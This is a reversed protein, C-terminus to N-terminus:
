RVHVAEQEARQHDNAATVGTAARIVSAADSGRPLRAAIRGRHMVLIRDSMGLIEELESSILLVGIGEGALRDILAHIESKAGVDVGQTPEDLILVKPKSALWKSLVVKQQNGGSLTSTITDPGQARVRLMDIFRNTISREREAVIVSRDSVRHLIPLTVNHRIPFPLVLGQLTRDEPLLGVGRAVAQWPTGPLREGELEVTGADYSDIGFIAQAVESRGSGVLGAMGVIEGARVEFSVDEFAGHRSLNAVSLLVDGPPHPAHRYRQGLERGVMMRILDDHDVDVVASTGVAAGDRLVTARDAIRFVEDLRHSIYVVSVKASRLDRVIGFLRDVDDSPLAATPEDMVIIRADRLLARALEVLKTQARSLSGARRTLAIDIGLREFVTRAERRMRAWDILGLGTTPQAGMFLNELVSLDPYLSLEQYITAVGLQQAHGPGTLHVPQGDFSLTGADPTHVGALVKILTSKGAGNEGILAHVEAEAVDFDVRKLAHVGGFRKDIGRMTVLDAM